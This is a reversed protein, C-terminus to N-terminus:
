GIERAEGPDPAVAPQGRQVLLAAVRRNEMAAMENSLIMTAIASEEPSLAALEETTLEEFIRLKGLERISDAYTRLQTPTLADALLADYRHYGDLLEPDREPSLGLLADYIAGM